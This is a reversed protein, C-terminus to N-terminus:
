RGTPAPSSRRGSRRLAAGGPRPRVRRARRPARDDQPAILVKVGERHAAEVIELLLAEAIEDDAVILEDLGRGRAGRPGRPRARRARRVRLRHRQPRLRADLPPADVQDGAGVLLARRRVGLSRLAAGSISEYSWRLLSIATAVTIAASSTSASRRSTSARHRDRVRARAGHRARGVLRGERGGRAARAPRLPPQALLRAALLLVLFPLWDSEQTWLLNWLIPKPDRVLSRLAIAVYLGVTLGIIDILVLAVVSAARRM